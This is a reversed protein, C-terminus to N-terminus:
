ANPYSPGPMQDDSNLRKANGMGPGESGPASRETVSFGAPGVDCCAGGTSVQSSEEQPPANRLDRPAGSKISIGTSNNTM